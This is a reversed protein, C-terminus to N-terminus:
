NNVFGSFRVSLHMMLRAPPLHLRLWGGFSGVTAMVGNSRSTALEATGDLLVKQRIGV